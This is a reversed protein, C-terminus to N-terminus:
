DLVESLGAIDSVIATPEIGWPDFLQGPNRRVWAAKWGVELAGIVDFPNGSVLWTYGLMAGTNELFYAYVAPDPKYSQVERVSIVGDLVETLGANGLVAALQEPEGNSFAVNRFGDKRLAALAGRTEPFAPLERYRRMLMARDDDDIAQGIAHCTYDLAQRTCVSFPAYTRGLGRRFLYEIQKDRWLGAFSTAAEGVLDELARTIGLPDILTGYVDFALTTRM